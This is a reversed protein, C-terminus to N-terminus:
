EENQIQEATRQQKRKEEALFENYIRIFDREIFGYFMGSLGQIFDDMLEISRAKLNNFVLDLIYSLFTSTASQGNSLTSPNVANIVHHISECFARKLHQLVAESYKSHGKNM